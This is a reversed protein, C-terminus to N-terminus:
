AILRRLQWGLVLAGLLRRWPNVGRLLEDGAWYALAVVSLWWGFTGFAGGFFRSIAWGAAAVALPPNPPQAITIAGTQRHEFWWRFSGLRM